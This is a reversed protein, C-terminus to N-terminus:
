IKLKKRSERSCFNTQSVVGQRKRRLKNILLEQFRESAAIEDILNIQFEGM